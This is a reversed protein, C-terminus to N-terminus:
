GVPNTGRFARSTGHCSEMRVPLHSLEGDGEEPRGARRGVLGRERGVVQHGAAQHAAVRVPDHADGLVQVQDVLPRDDRTGRHHDIAPRPGGGQDVASPVEPRDARRARHLDRDRDGRFEPDGAHRSVLAVM